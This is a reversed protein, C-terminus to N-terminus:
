PRSALWRVLRRGRQGLWTQLWLRWVWRWGRAMSLLQIVHRLQRRACRGKGTEYYRAAAYRAVGARVLARESETLNVLPDGLLVDAARRRWKLDWDLDNSARGAHQRVLVSPRALRHLDAASLLRAQLEWDESGDLTERFGGLEELLPRPVFLGPLTAITGVLGALRPEAPYFPPLRVVQRRDTVPDWLLHDAVCISGPSRPGELFQVIHWPLYLDDSDLFAVVPARGAEIGRNRAASRGVAAQPLVRVRDDIGRLQDSTGDSSGDDVVILEWDQAQQSLVSEVAQRVLPWRNRTPMVISVAPNTVHLTWGTGDFTRRVKGM